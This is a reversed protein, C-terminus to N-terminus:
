DFVLKKVEVKDYYVTGMAYSTTYCYVKMTEAREPTEATISVNQWKNLGTDTHVPTDSITKGEADYFRVMFSGTGEKIFLNASSEFVEGESVDIPDSMLAVSKNRATDVLKLSKRGHTHEEGSVAYQAQDDTKFMSTWGPIDGDEAPREFHHNTVTMEEKDSVNKVEMKHLMTRNERSSYYLNGDPGVSFDYVRAIQKSELSEPDIATLNGSFDAYLLGESWELEIKNWASLPLSDYLKRSKVIELTEPDMAFITNISAGWLLGDPGFSLEGIAEPKELGEVSLPVEKIKEETETDWVFIRAEEATPDVGLGGNITTSGYVKGDRYVLSNVSQDEVVNRFVKVKGDESANPDYVTLAGGLEGYFPISGIYAKGGGETISSIRNQEEGVTFLKKPNSDSPELAPDFERIDGEPYVGFLLKDGFTGISDGQGMDFSTKSKTRPDYIAGKGTQVGTIYLNGDPGTEIKNMVNPTGEALVPTTVTSKNELNLITVYGSFNITVLSKGPLDPTEFEVWDVGRFGSKYTIGTDDVKLTELDFTQLKNETNMFYVKGNESQEPVHLGRAKPIFVDLWRKEQTDYVYANSSLEYRAFLYRDDVKDLDYIHGPEGISAAIDEKEGTSKNYHIIKGHGTGSYVDDGMVALSRIYEQSSEGIMRGYDDVNGNSPDYQYVKGSPYTGVYIKGQDSTISFPFTEGSFNAVVEASDAGPSYKWLKAGGGITAIYLDGNPLVEHAWTNEAGELPIVRLLKEAKIDIVNLQAPLGKTTTYMVPKGDETGVAGNFISIADMLPTMLQGPEEFYTSDLKSVTEAEAPKGNWVGPLMLLLIIISIFAKKM